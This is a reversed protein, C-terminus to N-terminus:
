TKKNLMPRLQKGYTQGDNGGEFTIKGELEYKGAGLRGTLVNALTTKGSGSPGLIATMEGRHAYGSVGHLLQKKVAKKGRGITISLNLNEWRLGPSISYLTRSETIETHSSPAM